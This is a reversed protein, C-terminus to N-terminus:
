GLTPLATTMTSQTRQGKQFYNIPTNGFAGEMHFGGMTNPGKYGYEAYAREAGQQYQKVDVETSLPAVYGSSGTSQPTAEPALMSGVFAAPKAIAGVDQRVMQMDLNESTLKSYDETFAGTSDTYKGKIYDQTKSVKNNQFNAFYETDQTQFGDLQEPTFQDKFYTKKELAYTDYTNKGEVSFQTLDEPTSKKYGVTVDVTERDPFQELYTQEKVKVPTSSSLLSDKEAKAFLEDDTLKKNSTSTEFMSEPSPTPAVATPIKTNVDNIGTLSEKNKTAINGLEREDMGTELGFSQRTKDIKAGVWDSFKTSMGKKYGQNKVMETTVKGTVEDTVEKSVMEGKFSGGTLGNVTDGVYKSISNFVKGGAQAVKAVGSIVQGVPAMITGAFPATAAVNGIVTGLSGMVTGLGPLMLSLALTGVPGLKGFAKGASKLGKKLEKGIPKLIKKFSKFVKKFIKKM